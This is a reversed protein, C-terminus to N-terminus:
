FRPCAGPLREFSAFSSSAAMEQECPWGNCIRSHARRAWPAARGATDDVQSAASVQEQEVREAGRVVDRGPPAATHRLPALGFLQSPKAGGVLRVAPRGFRRSCSWAAVAPCLAPGAVRRLRLSCRRRFSEGPRLGARGNNGGRRALVTGFCGGRLPRTFHVGCRHNSTKSAAAVACAGLARRDIALLLASTPEAPPCALSQGRVWRAWRLPHAPGALTAPRQVSMPPTPWQRPRRCDDL